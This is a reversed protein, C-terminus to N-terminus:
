EPSISLSRHYSAALEGCCGPAVQIAYFKIDIVLFLSTHMVGSVSVHTRIVSHSWGDYIADFSWDCSMRAASHSCCLLWVVM